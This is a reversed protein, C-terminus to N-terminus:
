LFLLWAGAVMVAAGPLRERWPEGFLWGGLGVTVLMSLSSAPEAVSADLGTFALLLFLYSTLNIFGAVLAPRKRERVLDVTAGLRGTAVLLLFMWAAIFLNQVIAYGATPAVEGLAVDSAFSTVIWSDVIRGAGLLFSGAIMMVAGRDALLARASSVIALPSGRMRLLTAGYVLLVGGLVRFWTVEEGLVLFALLIVFLISTHYLPGVISAESRALAGVYLIFALAYVFSAGGAYLLVQPEPLGTWLLAPLWLVTGIAFFLFAAGLSTRDQTLEKTVIREYGLMLVRLSLAGLALPTSVM